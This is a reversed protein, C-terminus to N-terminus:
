KCEAAVTLISSLRRYLRSAAAQFRCPIHMRAQQRMIEAYSKWGAATPTIEMLEMFFKRYAGEDGGLAHLVTVANLASGNLFVSKAARFVARCSPDLFDAERVEAFLEGAIADPDILLSGLVAYQADLEAKM